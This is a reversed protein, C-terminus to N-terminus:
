VDPRGIGSRPDLPDASRDAVLDSFLTGSVGCLAHPASLGTMSNIVAEADAETTVTRTTAVSPHVALVRVAHVLLVSITLDIWSM